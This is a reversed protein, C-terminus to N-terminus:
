GDYRYQRALDPDVLGNPDREDSAEAGDHVPAPEPAAEYRLGMLILGRAVVWMLVYAVVTMFVARFMFLGLEGRSLALIDGFAVGVPVVVFPNNPFRATLDDMIRIWAAILLAYVPLAIWPNDNAIHGVLGPGVSYKSYDKGPIGAQPVLAMGLAVPKEGLVAEPYVARPIIAFAANRMSHLTDYPISEPRSEILWMSYSAAEQGSMSEAIQKGVDASVMRGVLESFGMEEIRVTRAGTFAAIAVIGATAVGALPLIARRWSVHKFHGHYAGWASAIAVSTLDRRGFNQFTTLGVGILLVVLAAGLFVPNKWNKSWVWCITGAAAASLSGTSIIAVPSFLPVYILVFRMFAAMALFGFALAIMTGDGPAPLPTGIKNQIGFTLWKRRYAVEFLVLFLILMGTYIIGTSVPSSVPVDGFRGFLFAAAASNMQFLVLGAIFM